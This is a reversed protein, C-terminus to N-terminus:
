SFLTPFIGVPKGVGEGVILEIFKLRGDFIVLAWGGIDGM